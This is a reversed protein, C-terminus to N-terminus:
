RTVERARERIRELADHARSEPTPTMRLRAFWGLAFGLIVAIVIAWVIAGRGAPRPM